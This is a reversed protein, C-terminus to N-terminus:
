RRSRKPNRQVILGGAEVLGVTAGGIDQGNVLATLVLAGLGIRLLGVFEHIPQRESRELRDACGNVTLFIM